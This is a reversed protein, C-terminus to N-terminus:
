TELRANPSVLLAKERFFFDELTDFFLKYDNIIYLLSTLKAWPQLNLM